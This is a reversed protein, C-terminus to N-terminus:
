NQQFIAQTSGTWCTQILFPVKNTEKPTWTIGFQKKSKSTRSTALNILLHCTQFTQIRLNSLSSLCLQIDEYSLNNLKAIHFCCINGRGESRSEQSQQRVRNSETLVSPSNHQEPINSSGEDENVLSVLSDVLADDMEHSMSQHLSKHPPENSLLNNSELIKKNTQNKSEGRLQQLQRQQLTNKRVEPPLDDVDVEEDEFRSEHEEFQENENAQRKAHEMQGHLHRHNGRGRESDTIKTTIDEVYTDESSHKVSANLQPSVSATKDQFQNHNYPNTETERDSTQKM